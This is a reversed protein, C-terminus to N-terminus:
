KYSKEWRVVGDWYEIQRTLKGDIDWYKWTGHNKGLNYSMEAALVGNEYWRQWTGDPKQDRLIQVSMKRDNPYYRYEIHSRNPIDEISILDGRISYIERRLLQSTSDASAHIEVVKKQDNPYFATIRTYPQTTKSECGYILIFSVIITLKFYKQIVM